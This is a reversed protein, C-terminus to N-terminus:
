KQIDPETIVEYKDGLYSQLAKLAAVGVAIDDEGAGGSVGIGGIVSGNVVIPFGGVFIAFKGPMMAHIGFAEGDAAAPGGRRNFLHTSRRHGSATFAKAMALEPSTNRAGNMREMAIVYGGDDVICITEAAHAAAAAALGAAIMVRAEELELKFVSKM